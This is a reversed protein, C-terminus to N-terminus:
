VGKSRLDEVIKKVERSLKKPVNIVIKILIDGRRNGQIPVGKGKVRLIEGFTIGESIKLKIEGDLTQIPIEAGLLADSLKIHLNTVLNHGEKKFTPHKHVHIKIYLDGTVGGTVAEGMQSLRLVEGDDIGAPIQVKIEQDNKQVGAGHCSDCKERPIKGSGHCADCARVSTFSGIISRRVEHVKGKGNCTRCTDMPSGKKAGNGGCVKCVSVKNLLVKREVGFISEEFSIELDISIDRGRKVKQRSGGFFDGFIDGLDFEVGGNGQTFQSFDFGGFGGGDFGQGGAGHGGSYANGYTDYQNRKSDDSLVSYAENIEKFKSENGGKKDPHHEHALKRFAKKIDDKTADKPVGLVDYFNKAM